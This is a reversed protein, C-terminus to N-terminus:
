LYTCANRKHTYFTNLPTIRRGINKSRDVLMILIDLNLDNLWLDGDFEFRSLGLKTLSQLKKLTEIIKQSISLESLTLGTLSKFSVPVAEFSESVVEIIPSIM